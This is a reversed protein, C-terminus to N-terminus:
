LFPVRYSRTQIMQYAEVSVIQVARLITLLTKALQLLHKRFFDTLVIGRGLLPMDFKSAGGGGGGM